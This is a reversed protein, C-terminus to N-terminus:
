FPYDFEAQGGGRHKPGSFYDDDHGEPLPTGAQDIEVQALLDALELRQRALLDGGLPMFFLGSEKGEFYHEAINFTAVKNEYIREYSRSHERVLPDIWKEINYHVALANFAWRSGMTPGLGNMGDGTTPKLHAFRKKKGFEKAEEEIYYRFYWQAKELNVNSDERLLRDWALAELRQTRSYLNEEIFDKTRATEMLGNNTKPM